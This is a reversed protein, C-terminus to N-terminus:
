RAPAAARPAAQRTRAVPASGARPRAARSTAARRRHGRARGGRSVRRGHRGRRQPPRRRGLPRRARRRRRRGQQPLEAPGAGARDGQLLGLARRHRALAPLGGVGRERGALRPVRPAPAAPLDLRHARRAHAAARRPDRRARAADRLAGVRLGGPRHRRRRHRDRRARERHPLGAAHRQRPPVLRHRHPDRHLARRRHRRRAPRRARPRAGHVIEATSCADPVVWNLDGFGPNTAHHDINVVPVPPRPELLGSARRADGCDLVIM